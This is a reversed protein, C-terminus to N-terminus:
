IELISASIYIVARSLHSVNIFWIRLNGHQYTINIAPQLILTKEELDNFIYSYACRVFVIHYEKLDM